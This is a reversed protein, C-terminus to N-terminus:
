KKVAIVQVTEDPKSDEFLQKLGDNNLKEGNHLLHFSDEVVACKEATCFELKELPPFGGFCSFVVQGDQWEFTVVLRIQKTSPSMIFNRVLLDRTATDSTVCCSLRNRHFDVIEKIPRYDDQLCLRSKLWKCQHWDLVKAWKFTIAPSFYPCQGIQGVIQLGISLSLSETQAPDKAKFYWTFLVLTASYPSLRGVLNVLLWIWRGCILSQGIFQSIIISLRLSVVTM